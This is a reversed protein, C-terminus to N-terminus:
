AAPPALYGGFQEQEDPTFGMDTGYKAHSAAKKAHNAAADSLLKKQVGISEQPSAGLADAQRFNAFDCGIFTVPWGKARCWDLVGKAQALSIKSETEDGDTYIHIRARPPDFSKMRLGMINIADYLPTGGFPLKLHRIEPFDSLPGDYACLDLDDGSSFVHLYISSNVGEAKLVQIYSTIARLCDQWKNGMSASGDLLIYDVQTEKRDTLQNM